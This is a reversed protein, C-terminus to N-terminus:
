AIHLQRRNVHIKAVYHRSLKTASANSLLWSRIAEPQQQVTRHLYPHRGRAAQRLHAGRKIQKRTLEAFWREIQNIWSASTPTFHVHYHPRRALWAKILSEVLVTKSGPSSLIWADGAIQSERVLVLFWDNRRKLRDDAKKFDGGISGGRYVM